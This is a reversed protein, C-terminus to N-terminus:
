DCFDDVAFLAFNEGVFSGADARPQPNGLGM